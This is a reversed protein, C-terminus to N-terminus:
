VKDWQKESFEKEVELPWKLLSVLASLGGTSSYMDLKDKETVLMIALVIHLAAEQFAFLFGLSPYHPIVRQFMMLMDILAIIGQSKAIYDVMELQQAKLNPQQLRRKVLMVNRGTQKFMTGGLPDYAECFHAYIKFLHTLFEQKFVNIYILTQKIGKCIQNCSIIKYGM